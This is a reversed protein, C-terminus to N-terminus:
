QCPNCYRGCGLTPLLDTLYNVFLMLIKFSLFPCKASKKLTLRKVPLGIDVHSVNDSQTPLQITVSLLEWQGSVFPASTNHEGMGQSPHTPSSGSGNSVVRGRKEEVEPNEIDSKRKM